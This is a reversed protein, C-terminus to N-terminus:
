TLKRGKGSIEEIRIKWVSTKDIYKQIEEDFTMMNGPTYRVSILKLAHIKKERDMVESAAGNIIASEYELSFKGPFPKVIGVCSICVRNLHRLNDLKHGEQASHFYLWEGERAFSLPIFYPSGDPNITAMVSFACSDVVALAANKPLERDKRRM